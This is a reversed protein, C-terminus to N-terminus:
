LTSESVAFANPDSALCLLALKYPSSSVSKRSFARTLLADADQPRRGHMSLGCLGYGLSAIARTSRLERELYELSLEIRPDTVAEGALAMMALGTPQLHPLLAQGLVITNGYNAGGTPLLRDVLLRVAERTRPHQAHGVARLALVFMATPELWSHTNPAWSWGILTTDHTILAGRPMPKGRAALTWEVARAIPERYRDIGAMQDLRNWLLIALSTPWCPSPQSATVGISGDRSQIRLLWDAALVASDLRNGHALALGALATPESAPPGNPHYASPIARALREISWTREADPDDALPPSHTPSSTM